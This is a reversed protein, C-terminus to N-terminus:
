VNMLDFVPLRLFEKTSYLPIAEFRDGGPDGNFVGDGYIQAATRGDIASVQDAFVLTARNPKNSGNDYWYLAYAITM